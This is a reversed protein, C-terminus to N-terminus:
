LTGQSEYCSLMMSLQEMVMTEDIYERDDETLADYMQHAKDRTERLEAESKGSNWILNILDQAPTSAGRRVGEVTRSLGM